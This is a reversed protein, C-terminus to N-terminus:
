DARNWRCMWAALPGCVSRVCSVADSWRGEKIQLDFLTESVTDTKPSLEVAQGALELASESDGEQMAQNLRGRLGLYRTEKQGSMAKLFRGAAEDDGSLQAAQASLLMTLPPEGLLREARQAHRRAEIADGAAVAVMGQTLAKYGRRRRSVQRARRIRRPATRFLAWVRWAATMLASLTLLLAFLVGMSTAVRYGLWELAVSGPTDAVAACGLGLLM